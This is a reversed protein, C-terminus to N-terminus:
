ASPRCHGQTETGPETFPEIFAEPTFSYILSQCHVEWRGEWQGTTIKVDSAQYCLYIWPSTVEPYKCTIMFLSIFIHNYKNLTVPLLVILPSLFPLVPCGPQWHPLSLPLMPTRPFCLCSEQTNNSKESDAKSRSMYKM